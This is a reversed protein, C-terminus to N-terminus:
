SVSARNIDIQRDATEDGVHEKAIRNRDKFLCYFEIIITM